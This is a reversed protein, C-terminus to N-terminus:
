NEGTKLPLYSKLKNMEKLFIPSLHQQCNRTIIYYVNLKGRFERVFDESSRVEMELM